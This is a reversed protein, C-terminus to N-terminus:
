LALRDSRAIIDLVGHLMGDFTNTIDRAYLPVHKVKGDLNSIYFVVNQSRLNQTNLYKIANNSGSSCDSWDIDSLIVDYNHMLLPSSGAECIGVDVHMGFNEFIGDLWKAVKPNDHIILIEAHRLEDKLRALRQNLSRSPKFDKISGLYEEPANKEIFSLSVGAIEIGTLRDLYNEVKDSYIFGALALFGIVIISPSKDILAVKVEQNM